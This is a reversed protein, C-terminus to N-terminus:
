IQKFSLIFSATALASSSIKGIFLTNATRTTIKYGFAYTRDSGSQNRFQENGAPISWLPGFNTFSPGSGTIFFAISVANQDAVTIGAITHTTSSATLAETLTVDVSWTSTSVTPRFVQCFGSTCTASTSNIDITTAGSWNGNFRCWFIVGSTITPNIRTWTQNAAGTMSYTSAARDGAVVFLLDGDVAGSPIPIAISNTANSGSHAPLATIEVFTIGAPHSLNYVEVSNIYVEVPEDSTGKAQFAVSENGATNSNMGVLQGSFITSGNIRMACQYQTTSYLMYEVDYTFSQGIPIASTTAIRVFNFDAGSDVVKWIEINGTSAYDQSKQFWIQARLNYTQHVIPFSFGVRNLPNDGTQSGDIAVGSANTPNWSSTDNLDVIRINRRVVMADSFNYALTRLKTQNGEVSSNDRMRITNDIVACSNGGDSFDEWGTLEDATLANAPISQPSGLTYDPQAENGLSGLIIGQQAFQM